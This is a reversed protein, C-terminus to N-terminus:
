ALRNCSQLSCSPCSDSRSRTNKSRTTFCDATSRYATRPKQKTERPSELAKEILRRELEAISKHFPLSLLEMALEILRFRRQLTQRSIDPMVVRGRSMLIAREVMNELERVNGPFFYNQLM